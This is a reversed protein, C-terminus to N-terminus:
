AGAGLRRRVTVPGAGAAENRACVEALPESSVQMHTANAHLLTDADRMIGVHGKWFIFDGRRLAASGPLADGLGAAQLDSDRPSKVGAMMLSLQVLGSCDIGMASKGGWLYPMGILSEAVAVFDDVRADIPELHKRFVYGGDPTASFGEVEREVRVEAGMPLACIPPAKMNAAPYLFTRPTRVRHSPPYVNSWLANAPIWGVYGDRALQAWAWGEEDEDYVTVIEGYLAQTDVGVDPRPEPRLDVVCEKIQMRVGDVFREAQIQGRLYSAALDPRAPTLRRDFPKNM